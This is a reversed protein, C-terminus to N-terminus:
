ESAPNIYTALSLHYVYVNFVFPSLYFLNSSPMAIFSFMFTLALMSNIVKAALHYLFHATLTAGPPFDDGDSPLGTSLPPLGPSLSDEHEASLYADAISGESPLVFVRPSFPCLIMPFHHVSVVMKQGVDETCGILNSDYLDRGSSSAELHPIDKEISTLQSWGEDEFTLNEQLNNDKPEISKSESKKVLEEYDQVLLSEYERFADPGLPSDPYSSHAMQM